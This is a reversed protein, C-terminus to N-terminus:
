TLADSTIIIIIFNIDLPLSWDEEEHTAEKEMWLALEM